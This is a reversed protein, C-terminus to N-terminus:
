LKGIIHWVVTASIQMVLTATFGFRRLLIAGALYMVYTLLLMAVLGASVPAVHFLAWNGHRAMSLPEIASMTVAIVWFTGNPWRRALLLTGIFWVPFAVGFLTFLIAACVAAYTQVLVSHPFPISPLSTGLAMAYLRGFGIAHDIVLLAVGIVLGIGLPAWIRQRNTVKEDWMGPFGIIHAFGSGLLLLAVFFGLTKWSFIAQQSPNMNPIHVVMEVLKGLVLLAVVAWMAKHSPHLKGGTKPEKEEV